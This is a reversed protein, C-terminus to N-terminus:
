AGTAYVMERVVMPQDNFGSCFKMLIQWSKLTAFAPSVVVTNKQPVPPM